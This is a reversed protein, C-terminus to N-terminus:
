KRKIHLEIEKYTFVRIMSIHPYSTSIFNNYDRMPFFYIWLVSTITGNENMKFRLKDISDYKLRIIVKGVILDPSGWLSKYSSKVYNKDDERRNDNMYRKEDHLFRGGSLAACM